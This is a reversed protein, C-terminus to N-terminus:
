ALDNIIDMRKDHRVTEATGVARATMRYPISEHPVSAAMMPVTEMRATADPVERTTAADRLGVAVSITKEGDSIVVTNADIVNVDRSTSGMMTKILRHESM